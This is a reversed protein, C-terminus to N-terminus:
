SRLISAKTVFYRMRGLFFTRLSICDCFSILLCLLDEVVMASPGPGLAVNFNVSDTHASCARSVTTLIPHSQSSHLPLYPAATELRPFTLRGLSDGLQEPIKCSSILSLTSDSFSKPPLPILHGLLILRFQVTRRDYRPLYKSHM